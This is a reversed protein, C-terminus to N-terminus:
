LVRAYSPNCVPHNRAPIMSSGSGVGNRFLPEPELDFRIKYTESGTRISSGFGAGFNPGVLSISELEFILKLKNM